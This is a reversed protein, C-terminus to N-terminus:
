HIWGYSLSSGRRTASEGDADGGNRSEFGDHPEDNHEHDHDNDDDENENQHTEGGGTACEGNDVPM